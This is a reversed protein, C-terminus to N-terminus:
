ERATKLELWLRAVDARLHMRKVILVLLGVSNEVVM